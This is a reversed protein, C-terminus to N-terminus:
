NRFIEVAKISRRNKRYILFDLYPAGNEEVFGEYELLYYDLEEYKGRLLDLTEFKLYM